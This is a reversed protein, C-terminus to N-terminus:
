RRSSAARRGSRKAHTKRRPGKRKLAPVSEAAREELERFSDEIHGILDHLDPVQEWDANLGWFLGGNYSFLGVVVSLNHFLPVVPYTTLMPCGLFYLPIQPGPVNTVILNYPRSREALRVAQVLLNPVTWEAIATLVEGGLAQKSEKLGSMTARVADLRAVPDDLHVPLDAIMETVRNGLQGREDPMRVSVPVMARVHLRDPDTGRQLFFRRLAGSVTALVVDNLTGGLVNKVAKLDAVKMGTWDFRRHPGIEVNLPTQSASRLAPSLADALAAVNNELRQLAASPQRVADRVADLVEFPQAIRRKIEDAILRAEGPEAEPSWPQPTGPEAAPDADLIVSMLDAGSIGDIMCHHTKSILAFRDHDLGEVFWMEWLPRKRDLPQSMIRGVLRKLTREDGPRPLATHRVHYALRFRDDDVWIPIREIPLHSLRQRFRPVLHLRAHIADRIRKIDLGGDPTRLSRGAFLAVGGVHMHCDSDEIGLFSADLASLREYHTM